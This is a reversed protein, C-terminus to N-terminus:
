AIACLNPTGTVFPLAFRTENKIPLSPFIAFTNGSTFGCPCPRSSSSATRAADQAAPGTTAGLDHFARWDDRHPEVHCVAPSIKTRSKAAFCRTLCKSDNLREVPRADLNCREAPHRVRSVRYGM